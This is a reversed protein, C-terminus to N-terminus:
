YKFTDVGSETGQYGRCQGTGGDGKDGMGMVSGGRPVKDDHVLSHRLYRLKWCEM